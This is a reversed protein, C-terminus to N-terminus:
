LQRNRNDPERLNELSSRKVFRGGEGRPQPLLTVTKVIEKPEKLGRLYWGIFIGAALVTLGGFFIVAPNM